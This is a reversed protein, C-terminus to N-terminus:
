KVDCRLTMARYLWQTLDTSGGYRLKGTPTICGKATGLFEEAEKLAKAGYLTTWTVQDGDFDAGLGALNTPFPSLADYYTIDDDVVPWEPATDIVEEWDEGLEQLSKTKDTSKLYARTLYTSGDGTVPYRTLIGIATRSRVYLLHYYFEIWTIPRSEKLKDDPVTGADVDMATFVKFRKGDTWVRAFCRGDILVESDRMDITGFRNLGKNIGDETLWDAKAARSVEWQEVAGTKLNFGNAHIGGVDIVRGAIGKTILFTTVPLMSKALQYCGIFTDQPNPTRADDMHPSHTSMSTIVNRTSNAVARRTLKGQIQKGKGYTLNSLYDYIEVGTRQMDWRARDYIEYNSPTVGANITNAISILRSYLDNIDDKSTRGDAGIVVDRTGASTVIYTDRMISDTDKANKLLAMRLDRVDSGTKKIKIKDFYSMFYEYGTDGELETSRVFDGEKTDWKAFKRGAMIDVYLGKIKELAKFVLPNMIPIKLDIYSTTTFRELDGPRGFIESSFLGDPHFNNSAGDYIDTVTVPKVGRLRGRDSPYLRARIAAEGQKM